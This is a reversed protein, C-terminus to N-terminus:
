LSHGLEGPDEWAGLPNPREGSGLLKAESSREPNWFETVVQRGTVVVPPSRWTTMMSHANLTSMVTGTDPPALFRGATATSSMPASTELM